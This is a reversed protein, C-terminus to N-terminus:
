AFLESRRLRLTQILALLKLDEVEGRDAMAALEPLPVELVAIDEHEEALGGGAGRGDFSAEALFLSIRETSAGPSSWVRGLPDLGTLVVGMEELAERRATEEDTEGPDILGACAETLDAELGRYLPSARFLRVLLATRRAPDFPLVAIADRRDYIEREVVQGGTLRIRALVLRAFGDHVVDQDIIAPEAERTM